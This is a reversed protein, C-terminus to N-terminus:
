EWYKEGGFEIVADEMKAGITWRGIGPWFNDYKPEDGKVVTNVDTLLGSEETVSAKQRLDWWGLSTKKSKILPLVKCWRKTGPLENQEGKGAPLPPQVLSIDMGLYGALKTSTPFSPLYSIPRYTGKFFPQKSVVSENSLGSVDNPYVAISTSGNPLTTFDFKALHKPINWNMRGNWCTDKQSVYIRSCRLGKKVNGELEYEFAGPVLLLEDYPGVPTETYRIVQVMALGGLFKGKSFSSASELTSFLFDQPVSTAQAATHYTM